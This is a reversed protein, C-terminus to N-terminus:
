VKEIHIYVIHNDADPTRVVSTKETLKLPKGPNIRIPKGDAPRISVEDERAGTRWRIELPYRVAVDRVEEPPTGTGARIVRDGVRLCWGALDAPSEMVARGDWRLTEAELSVADPSNIIRFGGASRDQGLDAGDRLERIRSWPIRRDEGSGLRNMGTLLALGRTYAGARDWDTRKWRFGDKVPKGPLHREMSETLEAAAEASRRMLTDAASEWGPFVEELVPVLRHRIRNRLYDHERNTADECWRIGGATLYDRLEGGGIDLLPRRIRDRSPPIGKLGEPGAGGFFRMLLTERSDDRTHATLIFDFGNEDAYTTLIGYRLSRAAQEPGGANGLQGSVPVFPIDRESCFRRCFGTEADEEADSRIGHRVRLATYRNATDESTRRCLELLGTSDGGGSFAVLCRSGTPIGLSALSEVFRIELNM